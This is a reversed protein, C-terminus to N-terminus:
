IDLVLTFMIIWFTVMIITCLHLNPCVQCHYIYSSKAETNNSIFVLDLALASRSTLLFISFCLRISLLCLNSDLSLKPVGYLKRVLIPLRPTLEELPVPLPELPSFVNSTESTAGTTNNGTVSSSLSTSLPPLSTIYIQSCFSITKNAFVINFELVSLQFLQSVNCERITHAITNTEKHHTKHKTHSQLNPKTQAFPVPFSASVPEVQSLTWHRLM